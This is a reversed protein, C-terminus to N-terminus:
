VKFISVAKSLSDSIKSLEKSLVEAKDSEESVRTASQSVSNVADNIESAVASQEESVTAVQDNLSGITNMSTSISELSQSVEEVQTLNLEVKEKSLQMASVATSTDAELNKLIADIEETSSQTRMALSRVEDAVVAFGRGQDGARAAEIAANLALLNTQEAISQIVEMVSCVQQSRESLVNVVDTTHVVEESLEGTVLKLQELSEKGSTIATHGQSAADSANSAIEALESSTSAMEGSATALQNLQQHQQEIRAGNGSAGASISESAQSLRSTSRSVDQIVPQMKNLFSNCAEVLTRTEDNSLAEARQTLNGSAVESLLSVARHIPTVIKKALLSTIIVCVLAVSIAIVFQINRSAQNEAIITAELQNIDSFVVAEDIQIIIQWRQNLETFLIPSSATIVGNEISVQAQNNGLLSQVSSDSIESGSQGNISSGLVFGTESLIMVKGSGDFLASASKTAIENLFQIDLNLGVVGFFKDRVVIPASLSTILKNNGDSASSHPKSFCTQKSEQPCLYYQGKREGSNHLSQDEFDNLAIVKLEGGEMTWYPSFRGQKNHGQQHRFIKDSGGLVNPQWVSFFGEYDPNKEVSSALLGNLLQRVEMAGISGNALERKVAEFSLALSGVFKQASSVEEHVTRAIKNSESKLNAETLGTVLTQTNSRTLELINDSSVVSSFVLVSSVVVSCMLIYLGIRSQISKLKM